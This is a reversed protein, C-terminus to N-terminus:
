ESCWEKRNAEDADDKREEVPMRPADEMGKRGRNVCRCGYSRGKLKERKMWM